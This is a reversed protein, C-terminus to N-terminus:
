NDTIGRCGEGGSDAGPPYPPDFSLATAVENKIKFQSIAQKLRDSLSVMGHVTQATEQAGASAEVTIASISQMASAVHRTTKAQEESAVSIEEVLEAVQKVTASIESLAKRALGALRGGQRVEQLGNEMAALAEGTESQIAKLLGAVDKTAQASREALKRIEDAVVSFGLGAEGAHAAEIAANLSLLNTQSAIHKILNIIESVEISRRALLRMKEATEEVAGDIKMMAESTDQVCHDGNEATALARRAAEASSEANRSVQSMSVAMEEVSSLTGTVNSAQRESGFAIQEASARIESASSHVSLAIQKVQTLIASFSDLMRNVSAAIRGLTDDGEVGRRTLDGDSVSSVVSLFEALGHELIEEAQKRETIDKSIGIVGVVRGESDKIPVKTSLLWCATKDAKMAHEVKGILPQGTNFIRQEDRELSDALESALFDQYTRGAAQDPGSVGLWAAMAKNVRLFRRGSDKFYIHDPTNDMLAHLLDRERALAEEALKKETMDWFIGQVGAIEGKSDRRPTKVLQIYRTHGDAARQEEIVELAAGAELVREDELRRKRATERSFLDQDTKGIIEGLDRGMTACFVRNGFTYKGEKDKCFINQPLSNVLSDFLAQSDKLAEEARKWETIDEVTGEYYIVGGEGRAARANERVAVLSGDRCRWQSEIGRVEGKSELLHKFLSREYDPEFEDKELDRDALEDFSSYGLLRVLTSNAMLIRGEPTTRYIGISANEFLNRYRAESELLAQETRKRETVDNFFVATGGEFASIRAEFVSDDKEGGPRLDHLVIARGSRQAESIADPLSTDLLGPFAEALPKGLVHDRVRGSSAEVAKNWLEVRGDDSVVFMGESITEIVQQLRADSQQVSQQMKGKQVMRAAFLATLQTLCLLGILKFLSISSSSEIEAFQEEAEAKHAQKIRRLDDRVFNFASVGENLDLNVANRTEGELISAIVRDRVALYAQWDSKFKESARAEAISDGLQMHEELMQIVRADAARSEDVYQLQLDADTTTLAYLMSRRAEQTQYQVEGILDLGGLSSVSMRRVERNGARLDSVVFTAVAVIAVGILVFALTFGHRRYVREFVSNSWAVWGM